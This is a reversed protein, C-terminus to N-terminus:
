PLKTFWFSQGHRTALPASLPRWVRELHESLQLDQCVYANPLLVQFRAPAALLVAGLVYQESYRRDIWEAPYDDPLYVDHIQILVGAPLAPLVELFFVTVDSSMGLRHSGDFFVIDGAQLNSYVAPAVAELGLRLSEDCLDEIDARPQPDVSVIRIPFGHRSITARAFKTSEGSGIELYTQPSGTALMYCLSVADFAPLFDNRWFPRTGSIERDAPIDSLDPAYDAIRELTEAYRPRGAALLKELEAHRPNGRGYRPRANLPYDLTPGASRFESTPEGESPGLQDGPRPQRRLLRGLVGCPYKM